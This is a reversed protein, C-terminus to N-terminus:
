LGTFLDSVPVGLSSAIKLLNVASINREGREVAGVYTRHLGCDLALKEQSWGKAQRRQRVRRGLKGLFDRETPEYNMLLM